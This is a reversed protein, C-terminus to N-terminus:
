PVARVRLNFFLSLLQGIGLQHAQRHRLHQQTGARLM